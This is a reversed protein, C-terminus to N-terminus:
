NAKDNGNQNVFKFDFSEHVDVDGGLLQLAVSTASYDAHEIYKQMGMYARLPTKYELTEGTASNTVIVNRSSGFIADEEPTMERPQFKQDKEITNHANEFSNDIADGLKNNDTSSDLSHEETEKLKHSDLQLTDVANDDGYMEALLEATAAKQDEASIPSEQLSFNKQFLMLLQKGDVVYGGEIHSGRFKGNQPPNSKKTGTIIGKERLAAIAREVTKPSLNLTTAIVKKRAMCLKNNLTFNLIYHVIREESFTLGCHYLWYYHTNFRGFGKEQGVAEFFKRIPNKRLEPADQEEYKKKIMYWIKVKKFCSFGNLSM